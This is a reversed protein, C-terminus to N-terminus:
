PFDSPVLMGYDISPRLFVDSWSSCAYSNNSLVQYARVKSRVGWGDAVPLGEQISRGLKMVSRRGPGDIDATQVNRMHEFLSANRM